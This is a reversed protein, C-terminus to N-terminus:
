PAKVSLAKASSYTAHRQSFLHSRQSLKSALPLCQGQWSKSEQLTARSSGLKMRCDSFLGAFVSILSTWTSDLPNPSIRPAKVSLAHSSFDTAYGGSSLHWYQSYKSDRPSIHGYRWDNMSVTAKSLGFRM